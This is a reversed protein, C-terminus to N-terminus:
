KNQRYLKIEEKIWNSTDEDINHKKLLTDVKTKGNVNSLFEKYSVGRELPNTTDKQSM